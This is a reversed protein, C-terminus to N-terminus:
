DVALIRLPAVDKGAPEKSQVVYPDKIATGFKRGTAMEILGVACVPPPKVEQGHQVNRENECLVVRHILLMSVTEKLMEGPDGIGHISDAIAVVLHPVLLISKEVIKEM